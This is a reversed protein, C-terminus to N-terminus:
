AHISSMHPYCGGTVVVAAAAAAAAAAAVVVVVVVVVAVIVSCRTHWCWRHFVAESHAQGLNKM